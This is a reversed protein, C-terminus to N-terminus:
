LQERYARLKQEILNWADHTEQEFDDTGPKWGTPCPGTYPKFGFQRYIGLAKYSWTQSSLYIGGTLGCEHYLDMLLTMAAKCLGKGQHEPLVAVWHVRAITRDFLDGYWLLASAALTGDPAYIFVGRKKLTEADPALEKEFQDLAAEMTEFHEVSLQLAAWDREMGVGPAYERLTYGEPLPCRPYSDPTRNTMLVGIFPVTKDLM